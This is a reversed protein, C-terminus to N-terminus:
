CDPPSNYVARPSSTMSKLSRWSTFEPKLQTLVLSTAAEAEMGHILLVLCFLNAVSHVCFQWRTHLQQPRELAMLFGDHIQSKIRQPVRQDASTIVARYFEPIRVAALQQARKFAALGINCPQGKIRQPVRQGAPAFVSGHGDPFYM